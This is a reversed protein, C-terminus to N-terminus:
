IQEMRVSRQENCRRFGIQKAFVFIGFEGLIFNVLVTKTAKAARAVACVVEEGVSM